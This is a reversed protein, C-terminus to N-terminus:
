GCTPSSGKCAAKNAQLCRKKANDDCLCPTTTTSVSCANKEANLVFGTDCETCGCLSGTTPTGHTCTCPNEPCATEDANIMFRKNCSECMAANNTTCAAGTKPSGNPCTCTNADCATEDGGM